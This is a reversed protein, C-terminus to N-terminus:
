FLCFSLCVFLFFNFYFGSRQSGGGVGEPSHSVFSLLTHLVNFDGTLGLDEKVAAIVGAAHVAHHLDHYEEIQRVRERLWDKPDGPHLSCMTRLEKTLDGYRNVFDKFIDEVEGFTVEGSKLDQYLKTFRKFCPRYLDEYAEEPQLLQGEMEETESLEKAVQAWFMRFTHSEKLLDTTKAMEQVEPSLNYHTTGTPDLSTASSGVTMVDNLRKGNLDESHRKEIEAFDVKSVVLSPWVDFRQARCCGLKDGWNRSGEGPARFSVCTFVGAPAPEGDSGRM